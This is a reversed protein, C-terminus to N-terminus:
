YGYNQAANPNINIVDIPIPLYLQWEAIPNVTYAYNTYFTETALYNNVTELANGWRLLDFWRQNEFALELRREDRVANRFEFRSPLDSETYPSLGARERVMNLYTFTEASPGSLENMLEACLLAIDAVRIVPWDADGDYQTSVPNSAQDINLYKRVHRANNTVTQGTTANYYSQAINVDRRVDNDGNSNYSALIDDSPCNYNNSSGVIVNAGNNVPAFLNGFPSGLGVNGGLYRVAFIIESNMENMTSFVDAYPVMVAGSTPNGVRPSLLVEKCLNVAETYQADGVEYHTAYVKALLAKAATLDARGLESDEQILPLMEGDIILNLDTEIRSYVSDVDSRQLYRAEDSSMRENVLFVPGWLRVLNFYQLSRLFLAEGQYKMRSEESEANDLRQLVNNCRDIVSYSANWYDSVWAHESNIVSQDLQETLKAQSSTSNNQHMRANDSRLETMAWEYYMVDHLGNYCGMLLTNLTADDRVYEDSAVESYPYKDLDCATLMLAAAISIYINKKM